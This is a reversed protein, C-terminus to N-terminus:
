RIEKGEGPVINVAKNILKDAIETNRADLRDAFSMAIKFLAVACLGAVVGLGPVVRKWDYGLDSIWPYLLMVLTASASCSIFVAMGTSRKIFGVLAAVIVAIFVTALLDDIHQALWDRLTM